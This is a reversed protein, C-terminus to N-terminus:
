ASRRQNHIRPDGLLAYLFGFYASAGSNSQSASTMMFHLEGAASPQSSIPSRSPIAPSASTNPWAKKIGFVVPSTLISRAYKVRHNQDGLTIWLGSAPWVADFATTDSQLDLM